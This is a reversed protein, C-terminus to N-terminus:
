VTCWRWSFEKEIQAYRKEAESLARSAYAIPQGDQMLVAGLGTGSADSQVTLEKEAEYYKLVPAKTVLEKIRACAQDHVDLWTWEADKVTLKRLPECVDSLMPLFKSLYNVFGVLRRVGAVDTPQPMELIAKIKGPDPKLGGDTLM